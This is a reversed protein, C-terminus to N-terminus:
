TKEFSGAKKRLGAIILLLIPIAFAVIGYYYRYYKLIIDITAMLSKPLMGTSFTIVAFPLILPKHYELGLTKRFVYILFFFGTSLYMYGMTGWTIIFVAEVRQFFRGYNIIRGLDFAPLTSEMAAPYPITLLFALPLSVLFFSSLILSTYGVAKFNKNGGIFPIILFLFLIEAYESLVTFGRVFIDYGGNGLIPFINNIDYDPMLLFLFIIYAAISVPVLIAQFRVIGEIGFYAGAMMGALFFLMVMSIPTDTFSITKMQESFQRLQSSVLFGILLLVLIGTIFRVTKGGATEAIDLLDKGKFPTYLRSIILFALIALISIYLSMIWGATGATEAAARPFNLIVKTGIMTVLMCVAEWNGFTIKKEM